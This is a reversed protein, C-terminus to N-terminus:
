EKWRLMGSPFFAVQGACSCSPWILSIAELSTTAPFLILLMRRRKKEESIHLDKGGMRGDGGGAGM